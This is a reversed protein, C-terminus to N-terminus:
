WSMSDIGRREYLCVNILVDVGKLYFLIRKRLCKRGHRFLAHLHVKGQSFTKCPQKKYQFLQLKRNTTIAPGIHLWGALWPTTMMATEINGWLVNVNSIHLSRPLSLSLSTLLPIAIRMRVFRSKKFFKRKKQETWGWASYNKYNTITVAIYSM